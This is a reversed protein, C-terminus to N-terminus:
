SIEDDRAGLYWPFAMIKLRMRPDAVQRRRSLVGHEKYTSLLRENEMRADSPAPLFSLMPLVKTLTKM